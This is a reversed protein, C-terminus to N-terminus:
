KFLCLKKPRSVLLIVTEANPWDFIARRADLFYFLWRDINYGTSRCLNNNLLLGQTFEVTLVTIKQSTITIEATRRHCTTRDPLEPCFSFGM